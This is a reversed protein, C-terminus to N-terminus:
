AEEIFHKAKAATHVKLRRGNIDQTFGGQCAADKYSLEVQVGEADPRTGVVTTLEGEQSLAASWGLGRLYEAFGAAKTGEFASEMAAVAAAQEVERRKLQRTVIVEVAGDLAANASEAKADVEALRRAFEDAIRAKMAEPQVLGKARTLRSLQEDESIGYEGRLVNSLEPFSRKADHRLRRIAGKSTDVATEGM